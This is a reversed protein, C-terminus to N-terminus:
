NEDFLKAMKEEAIELLKKLLTFRTATYKNSVMRKLYQKEGVIVVMKKARTVATYILNRTLIISPGAIAPIIVTDFESGQSKHITIAYSLSLDLLDPRTYLCNRGDEFEVNVEGSNPDILTIYGIDGNFVGQGTEDAYKGHKKWELDYNNTIQMVKDGLRFITQGVEVQPKTVSPPNIVEQLTKNLSEIGCVGAKMPALVQIERPDTKLFKPLRTTVLNVITNKISEPDGKSEFFFDTSTNDILPMKGDNILHANTIILSKEGQRFIKTLMCYPITGSALIDALVNGAGVSPLQDKDGVLILKCDRPLAKLLNCMLACDVMSVEDCIVADVKLPNSENHMFYSEDTKIVNVELLRHITKAERGTSDSMRKSARGTPAVLAVRLKMNEFIELICKIITTKGTGPGGTIVYVGNNVAGKIAKIQEEHLEIKNREQFNIIDEDVDTENHKSVNKLWTLKQAISNEYYYYRSLMVIEVNDNWLTVCTKDLCLTDFTNNFLETHEEYNLDLAKSAESFLMNKPLYTNGNKECSTKLVHILGARVRFASDSPIGINKAIRDATTFGIGDIDEILKYPNSKVIDATKEHYVNYIKLSMNTSINYSQLFMITNQVEKHERYSMGIELAKKESIGKIMSLKEPTYELIELTDTGFTEVIRKATIPGVGRILGSGLYKEMGAITKPQTLEYSTFAYQVGFKSREFKGELTVMAGVKVDIFKGVVTVLSGDKELKAVTYGNEDNRFVIDEITGVLAM